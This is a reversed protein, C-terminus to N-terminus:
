SRIPDCAKKVWIIKCRQRKVLGRAYDQAESESGVMRATRRINKRAGRPCGEYRIRWECVM